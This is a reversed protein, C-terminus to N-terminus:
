FATGQDDATSRWTAGGTTAPQAFVVSGFSSFVAPFCCSRRWISRGPCLLFGLQLYDILPASSDFCTAGTFCLYIRRCPPKTQDGKNPACFSSNFVIHEPDECPQISWRTMRHAVHAGSLASRFSGRGHAGGIDFWDRGHDTEM